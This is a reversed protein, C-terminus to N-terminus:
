LSRSRSRLGILGNLLLKGDGMVTGRSKLSLGKVRLAKALPIDSDENPEDSEKSSGAGPELGDKGERSRSEGSRVNQDTQTGPQGRTSSARQHSSVASGSPEASMGALVYQQVQAYRSLGNRTAIKDLENAAERTLQTKVQISM